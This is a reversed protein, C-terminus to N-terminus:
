IVKEDKGNRCSCINKRHLGVLPDKLPNKKINFATIGKIFEDISKCSKRMPSKIWSTNIPNLGTFGSKSSYLFISKPIKM